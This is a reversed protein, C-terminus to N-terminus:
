RAMVFFKNFGMQLENCMKFANDGMSFKRMKNIETGDNTTPCTMTTYQLVSIHVTSKTQSQYFTARLFPM